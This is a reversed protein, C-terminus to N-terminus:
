FKFHSGLDLPRLQAARRLLPEVVERPHRLASRPTARRGSGQKKAVQEFPAGKTTGTCIKLFSSEFSEEEPFSHIRKWNQYRWPVNLCCKRM